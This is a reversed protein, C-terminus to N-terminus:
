LKRIFGRFSVPDRRNSSVNLTATGNKLITFSYLRADQDKINIDMQYNKRNEKQTYAVKGTSFTFLNEDPRASNANGTFPLNSILSDGKVKVDYPTNFLKFGNNGSSMSTAIFIFRKARIQEEVKDQAILSISSLLAFVLFTTRM